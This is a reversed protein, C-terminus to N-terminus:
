RLCEAGSAVSGGAPWSSWPRELHLLFLFLLLPSTGTPARHDELPLFMQEHRCLYVCIGNLNSSCSIILKTLLRDALYELWWSITQNIWINSVMSCKKEWYRFTLTSTKFHRTKDTWLYQTSIISHINTFATATVVKLNYQDTYYNWMRAPGKKGFFLEDM